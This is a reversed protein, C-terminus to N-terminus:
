NEDHQSTIVQLVLMIWIFNSDWIRELNGLFDTMLWNLWPLRFQEVVLFSWGRFGGNDSEVSAILTQTWYYALKGDNFNPQFKTDVVFLRNTKPMLQCLVYGFASRHQTNVVFSM